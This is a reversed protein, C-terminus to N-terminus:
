RMKKEEREVERNVEMLHFIWKRCMCHYASLSQYRFIFTAGAIWVYSDLHAFHLFPGSCHWLFQIGYPILFKMQLNGSAGALWIQLVALKVSNIENWRIDCNM